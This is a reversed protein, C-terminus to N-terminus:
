LSMSRAITSQRQWMRVLAQSMSSISIRHNADREVLRVSFFFFFYLWYVTIPYPKCKTISYVFVLFCMDFEFLKKTTTPQQQKFFPMKLCECACWHMWAFFLEVFISLFRVQQFKVSFSLFFWFHFWNFIMRRISCIYTRIQM